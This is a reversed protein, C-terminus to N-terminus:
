LFRSKRSLYIGSRKFSQFASQWNGMRQDADGLAILALALERQTGATRSLRVAEAAYDKGKLRDNNMVETYALETLTQIEGKPDNAQRFYRLADEQMKLMLPLDTKYRYIYQSAAFYAKALTAPNKSKEALILSKNQLEGATKKDKKWLAILTLDSLTESEGSINRTKQETNLSDSLLKWATEFDNLRVNLQAAKRLCAAYRQHNGLTRWDDATQLYLSQARLYSDENWVGATQDANKENSLIIKDSSKQFSNQATIDTGFIGAFSMLALLCVLKAPFTENLTRLPSEINKLSKLIM